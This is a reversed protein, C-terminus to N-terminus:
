SEIPAVAKQFSTRSTAILIIGMVAELLVGLKVPGNMFLSTLFLLVSNLLVLTGFTLFRTGKRSTCVANSASKVLVVGGFLLWALLMLISGGFFFLVAMRGIFGLKFGFLWIMIALLLRGVLSWTAICFALVVWSMVRKM